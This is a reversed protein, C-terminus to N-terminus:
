SFAAEVGCNIDVAVAGMELISLGSVDAGNEADLRPDAEVM